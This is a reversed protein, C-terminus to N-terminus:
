DKCDKFIALDYYTNTSWNMLNSVHKLVPTLVKAILVCWLNCLRSSSSECSFVNFKIFYTFLITCNKTVYM